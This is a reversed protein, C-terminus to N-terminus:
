PRKGLASSHRHPRAYRLPKAPGDTQARRRRRRETRGGPENTAARPRAKVAPVRVPRRSPL